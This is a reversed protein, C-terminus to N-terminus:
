RVMPYEQIVMRPSELISYQSQAGGGYFPVILDHVGNTVKDSVIIPTNVITFDQKVHLEGGNNTVLLANSGGSGSTYPGMVIVFLEEERDDDLDVRNYYYKTSEHYDKPIEYYTIILKRLEELRQTEAKEGQIGKPLEVMPVDNKVEEEQTNLAAANKEEDSLQNLISEASVVEQTDNSTKAIKNSCRNNSSVSSSILLYCVGKEEKIYDHM